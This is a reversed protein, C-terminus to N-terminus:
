CTLYCTASTAFIPWVKSWIWALVRPTLRFVLGKVPDVALVWDLRKSVRRRRAGQRSPAQTTPAPTSSHDDNM